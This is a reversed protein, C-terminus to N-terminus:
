RARRRCCVDASLAWAPASGASAAGRAPQRPRRPSRRAAACFRPHTPRRRCHHPEETTPATRTDPSHGARGAPAGIGALPGSARRRSVLVPHNGHESDNAAEKRKAVYGAATLDTVIACASRETISVTAAIDRLRIGPDHAIALLVQARSTLLTWNEV